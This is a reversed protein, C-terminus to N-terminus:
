FFVNVEGQGAWKTTTLRSSDLSLVLLLRRTSTTILLFLLRSV